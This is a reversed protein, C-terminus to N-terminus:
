AAVEFARAMVKQVSDAGYEYYLQNYAASQHLYDAAVLRPVMGLRVFEAMREAEEAFAYFKANAVNMCVESQLRTWKKEDMAAAQEELDSELNITV